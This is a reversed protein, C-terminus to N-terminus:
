DLGLLQRNEELMQRVKLLVEDGDTCATLFPELIAIVRKANGAAVANADDPSGAFLEEFDYGTAAGELTVSVIEGGAFTLTVRDRVGIDSESQSVLVLRPAAQDPCVLEIPRYDKWPDEAASAPIAACLAAVLTTLGGPWSARGRGM